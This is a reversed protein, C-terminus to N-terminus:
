EVEEFVCECIPCADWTWSSGNDWDDNYIPEGCDPCIFFGEDRDYQIGFVKECYEAAQKWTMISM